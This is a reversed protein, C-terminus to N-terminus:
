DIKCIYKIMASEIVLLLCLMVSQIWRHITSIGFLTNMLGSIAPLINNISIYYGFTFGLWRGLRARITPNFIHELWNLGNMAHLCVVSFLTALEILEVSTLM